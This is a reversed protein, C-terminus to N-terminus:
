IENILIIEGEEMEISHFFRDFLSTNAFYLYNFLDQMALLHNASMRADRRALGHLAYLHLSTLKTFSCSCFLKVTSALWVRASEADVVDYLALLFGKIGRVSMAPDADRDDTYAEYLLQELDGSSKIADLAQLLGAKHQQVLAVVVNKSDAVPQM